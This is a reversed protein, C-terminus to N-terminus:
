VRFITPLTLHTYSVARKAGTMEYWIKRDKHGVLSLRLSPEREKRVESIASAVSAVVAEAFADLHEKEITIEEDNTFLAYIDEVLTDISKTM